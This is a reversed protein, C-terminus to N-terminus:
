RAIESLRQLLRMAETWDTWSTTYLNADRLSRDIRRADEMLRDVSTRVDRRDVSDAAARSDLDRAGSVFYSMDGLLRRASENYGGGSREATDRALTSRVVLEHASRRFDDLAPGSLVSGYNGSPGGPANPYTPYSPSEAGRPPIEVNEGALLRQMRDIVNQVRRWEEVARNSASVSRTRDDYERALRDIENVDDRVYRRPNSYNQMSDRFRRSREILDAFVPIEARTNRTARLEDRLSELRDVLRESLVRMTEYRSGEIDGTPYDPPPSSYTTGCATALLTAALLAVMRLKWTKRRM